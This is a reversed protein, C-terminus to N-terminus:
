ATVEIFSEISSIGAKEFDGRATVQRIQPEETMGAVVWKLHLCCAALPDVTNQHGVPEKVAYSTNSIAWESKNGIAIMPCKEKVEVRSTEESVSDVHHRGGLKAADFGVIPLGDRCIDLAQM